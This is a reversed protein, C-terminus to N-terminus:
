YEKYLKIVEKKLKDMKDNDKAYKKFFEDMLENISEGHRYRREFEKAIEHCHEYSGHKFEMLILEVLEHLLNKKEEEKGGLMREIWLEKKPIWHDAFHHSGLMCDVCDKTGKGKANRIKDGDVTYITVIDNLKAVLKKDFNGSNIESLLM